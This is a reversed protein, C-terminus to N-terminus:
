TPLVKSLLRVCNGGVMFSKVSFFSLLASRFAGLLSPIQGQDVECDDDRKLPTSEPDPRMELPLNVGDIVTM